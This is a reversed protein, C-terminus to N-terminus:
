VLIVTPVCMGLIKAIEYQLSKTATAILTLQDVGQLLTKRFTEGRSYNDNSVYRKKM